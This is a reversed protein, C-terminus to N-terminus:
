DFNKEESMGRHKKFIIFSSQAAIIGLRILVFHHSTESNKYRIYTDGLLKRLFSNTIKLREM